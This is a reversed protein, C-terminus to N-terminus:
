QNPDTLSYEDWTIDETSLDNRTIVIGEPKFGVFERKVWSTEFNVYKDRVWIMQGKVPIELQEKEKLWQEFTKSYKKVREVSYGTFTDEYQNILDIIEDSTYTKKM